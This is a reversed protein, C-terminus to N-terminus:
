SCLGCIRAECSVLVIFTCCIFGPPRFSCLVSISALSKFDEYLQKKFEERYAAAGFLVM